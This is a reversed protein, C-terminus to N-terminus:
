NNPARYSQETAYCDTLVTSAAITFYFTNYCSQQLLATLAPLLLFHFFYYTNSLKLHWFLIISALHTHTHRRLWIRTWFSFLFSIARKHYTGNIKSALKWVIEPEKSLAWYYLYTTNATNVFIYKGSGAMYKQGSGSEATAPSTLYRLMFWLRTVPGTNCHRKCLSSDCQINWLM